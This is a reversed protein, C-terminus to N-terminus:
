PKQELLNTSHFRAYGCKTCFVALCPPGDGVNVSGESFTPMLVATPLAEWKSNGCIACQANPSIRNLKALIQQVTM